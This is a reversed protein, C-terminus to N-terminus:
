PPSIPPQHSQYPQYSPHHPKVHHDGDAHTHAHSGRPSPDGMVTRDEISSDSGDSGDIGDSAATGGIWDLGGRM